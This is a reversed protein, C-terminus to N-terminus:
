ELTTLERQYKYLDERVEKQKNRLDQAENNRRSLEWEINRRKEAHPDETSSSQTVYGSPSTNRHVITSPSPILSMQYQLNRVQQDKESAQRDLDHSKAMSESVMAQLYKKRGRNYEKLFAKEMEPPCIKNYVKGSAGVQFGNDQACFEKVGERHKALLIRGQGPDCLDLNFNEGNKGTQHVIEPRCYQSMGAKFGQDLQGEKVDAEAKRCALVKDDNSIRQGKMALDFGHQYWNISECSKRMFYNACGTLGFALVLLGVAKM